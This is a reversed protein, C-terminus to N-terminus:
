DKITDILLKLVYSISSSEVFFLRIKKGSKMIAAAENRTCGLTDPLWLSFCYAILDVEDFM